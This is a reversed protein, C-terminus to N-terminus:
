PSVKAKEILRDQYASVGKSFPHDPFDRLWKNMASARKILMSKTNKM